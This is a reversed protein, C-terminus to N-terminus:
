AHGGTAAEAQAHVHRALPGLVTIQDPDMAEFDIEVGLADEIAAVLEIFGLSDIMGSDRLDLDDSAGAIVADPDSFPAGSASLILARVDELRPQGTPPLGNESSSNMRAEAPEM